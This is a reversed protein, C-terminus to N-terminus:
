LPYKIKIHNGCEPCVVYYYLHESEYANIRDEEDQIDNKNYLFQCYCKNCNGVINNIKNKGHKLIEM